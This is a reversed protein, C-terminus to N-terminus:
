KVLTKFLSEYESVIKQKNYREWVGKSVKEPIWIKEVADTIKQSYEEVTECIFGNSGPEIIENIGGPCNYVIAPTGTSVAELLANPFGEVFSGLLFLDSQQLLSNIDNTFPIHVVKKSLGLKNIENQIDDKLSGNGVIQYVFPFQLKSLAELIRYHGKRKELSGVTIFIPVKNKPTNSKIKFSDSIPNNITILKDPNLNFHKIMDKKMDQSQCVIADLYNYFHKPSFIKHLVGGNKQIEGFVSLVNAERGIFKISKFYISQIAMMTNLHSLTSMVVDPKNKNLFKFIDFFANLTRKKNLYHVPIGEIKYMTEKENEIILLSANFEEKNISQALFSMVKEAGGARLSPLLFLINKKM